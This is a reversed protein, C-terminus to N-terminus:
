RTNDNSYYRPSQSDAILIFPKNTPLQATAKRPSMPRTTGASRQIRPSVADVTSVVAWALLFSILCALTPMM